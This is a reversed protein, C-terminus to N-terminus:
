EIKITPINFLDCIKLAISTGGVPKGNVEEAWYCVFDSPKDLHEGLLIYVNRIQLKKTLESVSDYRPYVQKLIETAKKIIEPDSVIINQETQQLCNYGNKPLFIQKNTCGAAFAFDAGVAGGTRLLYGMSELQKATQTMRKLINAPTKRSGIGSYIM